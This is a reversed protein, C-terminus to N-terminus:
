FDAGAAHGSSAEAGAFAAAKAWVTAAQYAAAGPTRPHSLLHAMAIIRDGDSTEIAVAM